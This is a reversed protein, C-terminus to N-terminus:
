VPTIDEGAPKETEAQDVMEARTEEHDKRWRLVMAWVVVVVAVAAIYYEVYAVELWAAGRVFLFYNLFVSSYYMLAHLGAAILYYQWWKGKALGYGALASAAIHFGVVFFREWFTMIGDFGYLTIFRTTWGANFLNGHAWFAEFIGFGAGAAAGIVLGMGPTINRGSARWWVAIPVLKAAEQVLGSYLVTPIGTLLLWEALTIRDWYNTLAQDTYYQLPMQVFTVALLTLFASGVMVPWFWVKKFVPTWYGLLWVAGFAIALGIAVLMLDWELGPFIFWSKLFNVMADWLM